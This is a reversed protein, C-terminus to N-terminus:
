KAKNLFFIGFMPLLPVQREEGNKPTKLGDATGWSHRIFLRDKGIDRLQLANIEGLRAGTTLAVLFALKAREDHWHLAILSQIEKKDLLGRRKAGSSSFRPIGEAPNEQIIGNKYAWALPTSVASLARNVTARALGSDSLRLLFAKLDQKKVDSLYVGRWEPCDFYQKIRSISDLIHRRGIKYGYAKREALFPSTDENWADYLFALFLPTKQKSAALLGKEKLISAIKEADDGSISGTRISDIIGSAEFVARSPQRDGKETPFGNKLWDAAVGHAEYLDTKGTSRATEFKHTLPNRFQVYYIRGRKSLSYPRMIEERGFVSANEYKLRM